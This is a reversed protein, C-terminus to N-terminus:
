NRAHIQGGIEGGGHEVTHVNVFANADDIETVLEDVTDLPGDVEDDTIVGEALVGNVRGPVHLPGGTDFDHLWVTVPGLVHDLHIHGMTVDHINAVILRFKLGDDGLHFTAQGRSRVDDHGHAAPSLHATFTRPRQMAGVQAAIGGTAVIAGTTM